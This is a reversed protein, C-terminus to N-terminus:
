GGSCPPKEKLMQETIGEGRTKRQSIVDADMEDDTLFGKADNESRISDIHQPFQSAENETRCVEFPIAREVVMQCEFINVATSLTMGM